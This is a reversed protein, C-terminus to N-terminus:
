TCACKIIFKTYNIQLNTIIVLICKGIWIFGNGSSVPTGDGNRLEIQTGLLPSGLPVSSPSDDSVLDDATM